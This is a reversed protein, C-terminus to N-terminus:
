LSRHSRISAAVRSAESDPRLWRRAETETEFYSIPLRRLPQAVFTLVQAKWQPPGVIAIQLVDEEDDLWSSVDELSADPKWGGFAELTILVRMPGARRIWRRVWDLLELQDRTTAVGQLTATVLNPREFATCGVMSSRYRDATM